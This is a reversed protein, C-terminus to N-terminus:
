DALSFSTVSSQAFGRRPPAVLVHGALSTRFQTGRNWEPPFTWEDRIQQLLGWRRFLEVVRPTHGIAGARALTASTAADVVAVEVGHLTLEVAASLGVPGAGVVLVDVESPPRGIPFRVTEVERGGTARLRDNTM